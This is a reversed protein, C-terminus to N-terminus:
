PPPVSLLSKEPLNSTIFAHVQIRAILSVADNYQIYTNSCLCYKISIIWAECISSCTHITLSDLVSIVFYLGNWQKILGDAWSLPSFTIVLSNWLCPHMAMHHTEKKQKRERKETNSNSNLTKHKSSLQVVWQAISGTRFCIEQDFM